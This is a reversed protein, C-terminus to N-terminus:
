LHYISVKNVLHQFTTNYEPHALIYDVVLLQQTPEFTSSRNVVGVRVVLDSPELWRHGAHLCHAATMLWDSRLLTGGCLKDSHRYKYEILAQWPYHEASTVESGQTIRKRRGGGEGRREKVCGCVDGAGWVGLMTAVSHRGRSNEAICEYVGGDNEAVQTTYM